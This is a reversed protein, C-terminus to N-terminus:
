KGQDPYRRAVNLAQLEGDIEVVVSSMLYPAVVGHLRFDVELNRVRGEEKLQQIYRVREEPRVWISAQVVSTALAEERSLGTRRLFEDNVELLKGDNFRTLTLIDPVADFVTRLVTQNKDLRKEKDLLEEILLAQSRYHDKLATFSMAFAMTAALVLWRQIEKSEVVGDLTAITFAILSALTLVGQWRASWPVLATAGLVLVFLAPVLPEDENVAIASMTRSAILILCFAMAVMRWNREFWKLYTLCFAAGVLAIDFAFFPWEAHLLTHEFRAAQLWTAVEFFFVMGLGTRLLTNLKWPDSESTCALTAIFREHWPGSRASPRESDESSGNM